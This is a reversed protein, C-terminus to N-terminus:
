PRPGASALMQSSDWSYLMNECDIYTTPRHAASYAAITRFSFASRSLQAPADEVMRDAM